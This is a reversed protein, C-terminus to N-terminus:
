AVGEEASLAHSDLIEELALGVADMTHFASMTILSFVEDTLPFSDLEDNLDDRHRSDLQAHKLMTRFVEPQIGHKAQIARLQGASPPYGELVAVYGLLAAPHAHFIWYYQSGILSAIAPSPTRALIEERRLGFAVMDELFWEDHHLEEGAHRKYYRALPAALPDSGARAHACEAATRLLPVTTRSVCYVTFFFDPLMRVLQPHSWLSRAPSSLRHEALRLKARLLASPRASKSEVGAKMTLKGRAGAHKIHHTM